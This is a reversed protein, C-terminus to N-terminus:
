EVHMQSLQITTSLDGLLLGHMIALVGLGELLKKSALLWNMTLGVPQEGANFFLQLGNRYYIGWLEGRTSNRVLFTRLGKDYHNIRNYFTRKHTPTAEFRM